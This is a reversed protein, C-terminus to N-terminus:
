EEPKSKMFPRFYSNTTNGERTLSGEANRFGTEMAGRM